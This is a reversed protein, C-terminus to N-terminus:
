ADSEGKRGRQDGADPTPCWGSSAGVLLADAPTQSPTLGRGVEQRPVHAATEITSTSRCAYSKEQETPKL